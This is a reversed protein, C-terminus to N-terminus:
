ESSSDLDGRTRSKSSYTGARWARRVYLEALITITPFLIYPYLNIGFHTASWHNFLVDPGQANNWWAPGATWYNVQEELIALGPIWWPRPYTTIFFIILIAIVGLTTNAQRPAVWATELLGVAM